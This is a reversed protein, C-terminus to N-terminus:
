YDLTRICAYPFAMQVSKNTFDEQRIVASIVRMVGAHSVLIVHEKIHLRLFDEWAKKIRDYFEHPSEGEPYPEDWGMQSWRFSPYDRDAEENPMGALLGNNMERFEPLLEVELNLIKGIPQATEQARPLDSSFIRSVKMLGIKNFTHIKNTLEQVQRVGESSLGSQSWGGRVTEDDQGHRILYITM